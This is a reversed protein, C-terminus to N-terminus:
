QAKVLDCGGLRLSPDGLLAWQQVTKAHGEELVDMDAEFTSIYSKITEAFTDGLITHGEQGYQKFFEISIWADGGGSTSDIGVRGYGLGTNGITAIAGRNPLSILRWNFCETIPAGYTWMKNDIGFLIKPFSMISPILSVNFQSNHCGGVVVVPLKDKNTLRHMPLIPTTIYPPFPAIGSVYLGDFSGNARDGPIGPMHDAWVNPSGHGSFFAFGCGKSLADVVDHPNKLRGNSAWYIDQEFHEPMYYLAGGRGNLLRAGTVWEGEFYVETDYKWDDFVLDGDENYIVIHVDTEVGYPSPDYSKGRIYMVGDQYTVNAWGTFDNDYANKYGREKPAYHVDSNGLIDGTTPTTIEIIADGPYHHITKHDDHNHHLSSNVSKNVTVTVTDTPGAIGDIDFSQGIITYEGDPIGKTDWMIDLPQQDLFGDGSFVMTKNFWEQGYTELEYHIIKDVVTRVEKKSRCALRGVAVDPVLDIGLDDTINKDPYDMAAFISDNNPNWDEFELLGTSENERYIDAYYLDSIVGPDQSSGGEMNLLPYKPNDYMNTYRVPLYWHRAGCNANDRPIAWIRSKLGGVLLVYSINWEELAHKIFYKIQEPQDVGDFEKYIEETTKLITDIGTANKHIILPQLDKSFVKPAIIVLDYETEPCENSNIDNEITTNGAYAQLGSLVLIGLVIIPIIKKM